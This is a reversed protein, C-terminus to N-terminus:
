RLEVSHTDNNVVPLSSWSLRGSSGAKMGSSSRFKSKEAKSMGNCDDPRELRKDGGDKIEPRDLWSPSSCSTSSGARSNGDPSIDRPAPNPPNSRPKAAPKLETALLSLLAPGETRSSSVPIISTPQSNSSCPFITSVTRVAFNAVSAGNVSSAVTPRM